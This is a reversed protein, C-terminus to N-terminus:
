GVVRPGEPFLAGFAGSILGVLRSARALPGSLLHALSLGDAGQERIVAPIGHSSWKQDGDHHSPSVMTTYSDPVETRLIHVLFPIVGADLLAARNSPGWSVAAILRLFFLLRYRQRLTDARHRRTPFESSSSASSSELMYEILRSLLAVKDNYPKRLLFVRLAQDFDVTFVLSQLFVETPIHSICSIKVLAPFDLTLYLSSDEHPIDREHNLFLASERSSFSAIHGGVPVTPAVWTSHIPHNRIFPHYEPYALIDLLVANSAALVRRRARLDSTEKDNLEEHIESKNLGHLKRLLLLRDLVGADLVVRCVSSRTRILRSLFLLFPYISELPPTPSGAYVSVLPSLLMKTFSLWPDWLAALHYLSESIFFRLELADWRCLARILFQTEGLGIQQLLLGLAKSNIEPRYLGVRSFELLQAYLECVDKGCAAKEDVLPFQNSILSLQRAIVFHDISRITVRGLAKIAKGTLAGPGPVASESSGSTSEYASSAIGSSLSLQSSGALSRDLATM